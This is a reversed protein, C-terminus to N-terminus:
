LTELPEQVGVFLASRTPRAPLSPKGKDLVEVASRLYHKAQQLDRRELGFRARVLYLVCLGFREAPTEALRSIPERVRNEVAAGFLLRFNPGLTGFRAVPTFSLDVQLNGPLLFVRYATPGVHVEFLHAADLEADLERTWEALVKEIATGESVGFTLDLDSWRDVRGAAEEGVVAAAVVRPDEEERELIRRRASDREEVTFLM